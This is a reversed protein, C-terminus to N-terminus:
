VHNEDPISNDSTNKYEFSWIKKGANLSFKEIFLFISLYYKLNSKCDRFM